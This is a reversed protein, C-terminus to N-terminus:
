RDVTVTITKNDGPQLKIRRATESLSRIAEGSPPWSDDAGAVIVLYDGPVGSFM